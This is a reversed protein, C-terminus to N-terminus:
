NPESLRCSTSLTAADSASALLVEAGYSRVRPAAAAGRCDGIQAPPLQAASVSLASPAVCSVPQVGMGAGRLMLTFPVTPLVSSRTRHTSTPRRPLAQHRLALAVKLLGATGAAGKTHGIQSKVSGLACWQRRAPDAAAFVGNLATAECLDGAATGTGHAEVLRM